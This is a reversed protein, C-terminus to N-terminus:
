RYRRRTRPPNLPIVELSSIRNNWFDRRNPSWDGYIDMYRGRYNAHEYIRVKYGRPVYIASICDNFDFGNHRGVSWQGNIIMQRGGFARDFVVVQNGMYRHDFIPQAQRREVVRISKIRNRLFRSERGFGDWSQNIVIPEGRFNRYEYLWLEFGQPVYISEINFCFDRDYQCSWDRDILLSEGRYDTAKYLEIFENVPNAGRDNRHHNHRGGGHALVAQMGFVSLVFPLILKKM